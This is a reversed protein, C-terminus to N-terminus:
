GRRTLSTPQSSQNPEKKGTIYLKWIVLFPMATAIWPAIALSWPKGRYVWTISDLYEEFPLIVVLADVIALAVAGWVLRRKWRMLLWSIIITLAPAYVCLQIQHDPSPPGGTAYALILTKM